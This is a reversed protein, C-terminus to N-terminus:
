SSKVQSLTQTEHLTYNCLYTDRCTQQIHIHTYRRHIYTQLSVENNLSTVPPLLIILVALSMVFMDIWIDLPEGTLVGYTAGCLMGLTLSIIMGVLDSFMEDVKQATSKLEYFRQTTEHFIQDSLTKEKVITYKLNENCTNFERKLVVSIICLMLIIGFVLVWSITYFILFQLINLIKVLVPDDTKILFIPPRASKFALESSKKLQFALASGLLIMVVSIYFMERRTLSNNRVAKIDQILSFLNNKKYFKYILFTFIIVFIWCFAIVFKVNTRSFDTVNITFGIAIALGLLYNFICLFNAAIFLIIKGIQGPRFGFLGFPMMLMIPVNLVNFYKSLSKFTSGAKM